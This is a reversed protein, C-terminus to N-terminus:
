ETGDGGLSLYGDGGLAIDHDFLVATDAEDGIGIDHQFRHVLCASLLDLAQRATHGLDPYQQLRTVEALDHRRLSGMTRSPVWDQPTLDYLNVTTGEGAVALVNGKPSLRVCPRVRDAGVLEIREHIFERPMPTDATPPVALIELHGDNVTLFRHLSPSWALGTALRDDSWPLAQAGAWVQVTAPTQRTTLPDHWVSLAGTLSIRVLASPSFAANEWGRTRRASGHRGYDLRNVRGDALDTVVVDDPGLAAITRGDPHVATVWPHAGYLRRPLGSEAFPGDGEGVCVEFEVNTGSRWQTGVMFAREGVIRELGCYRNARFDLARVGHHDVHYLKKGNAPGASRSYDEAVVVTDRGVHAVHTLRHPFESHLQSVEKSRVDVVGAEFGGIFALQRGDSSFDLDHVAFETNPGGLTVPIPEIRAPMSSVASLGDDVVAPNATRLAEFLEGDEAASPRWRGFAQTTAVAEPLTMLPVLRWLRDWDGRQRLERVLYRRESASLTVFDQRESRQGALVRLTDIGSLATMARRLEAREEASAGRYALGLLTGDPDQAEYQEQQGTRVFFVVRKVEDVPALHHAICFATAERSDVAAACYLDVTEPGDQAFLRNRATEGIPHDFRLATDVLLRADVSVEDDGLALRSLVRTSYGAGARAPLKWQELLSWLAADAENLWTKWALNVVWGPIEPVDAGLETLVTSDWRRPPTGTVSESPRLWASWVAEYGKSSIARGLTRIAAPKGSDAARLVTELSWSGLRSREGLDLRLLLSASWLRMASM